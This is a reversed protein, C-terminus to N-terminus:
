AKALSVWLVIILWDSKPYGANWGSFATISPMGTNEYIVMNDVTGVYSPLTNLGPNGVTISMGNSKVYNSLNSYYTEYGRTNAM